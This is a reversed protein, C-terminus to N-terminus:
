AAAKKAQDAIKKTIAPLHNKNMLWLPVKWITAKDGSEFQHYVEIQSKPLWVTTLYEKDPDMMNVYYCYEVLVAKETEREITGIFYRMAKAMETGKRNTEGKAKVINYVKTEMIALVKKLFFAGSM